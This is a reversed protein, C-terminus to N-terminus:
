PRLRSVVAEAAARDVVAIEFSGSLAGAIEPQDAVLRGGVVYGIATGIHHSTYDRLRGSTAADLGVRLRWQPSAADPGAVALDASDISLVPGSLEVCRGPRNVVLVGPRAASVTCPSQGVRTVTWIQLPVGLPGPGTRPAAPRFLGLESIFDHADQSTAMGVRLRGASLVAEYNTFDGKLVGVALLQGPAGAAIPRLTEADETTLTIEVLTGGNPARVTSLAVVEDVVLAAPGCRLEADAVCPGPSPAPGIPNITMPTTLRSYGAVPAATPTGSPGAGAARVVGVALLIGLVALVSGGVLARERRQRAARSRLRAGADPVAQLPPPALATGLAQRLEEDNM